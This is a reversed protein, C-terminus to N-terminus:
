FTRQCKEVFAQVQQTIESSARLEEVTRPFVWRCHGEISQLTDPIVREMRAVTVLLDHLYVTVAQADSTARESVARAISEQTEEEPFESIEEPSLRKPMVFSPGGSAPKDGAPIMGLKEWVCNRENTFAALWAAIPADLVFSAGADMALAALIPARKARACELLPRLAQAEAQPRNTLVDQVWRVSVIQPKFAAVGDKVTWFQSLPYAAAETSGYAAYVQQVELPEFLVREMRVIRVLQAFHSVAILKSPLYGWDEDAVFDIMLQIGIAVIRQYADSFQQWLTWQVWQAFESECVAFMWPFRRLFAALEEAGQRRLKWERYRVTLAAIKASRVACLTPETPQCEVIAHIPDIRPGSLWEIAIHIHQLGCNKAWSAFEVLAAFDGVSDASTARLSVLPVFVGLSKFFCGGMGFRSLVVGSRPGPFVRAAPLEIQKTRRGESRSVKFTFDLANAAVEREIAWAGDLCMPMVNKRADSFEVFVEGCRAQPVVELRFTTQDARMRLPELPRGVYAFPIASDRWDDYVTVHTGGIPSDVFLVHSNGKESSKITKGGIVYKYV